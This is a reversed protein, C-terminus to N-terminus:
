LTPSVNQMRRNGRHLQSPGVLLLPLFLKPSSNYFDQRAQLCLKELRKSSNPMGKSCWTDIVGIIRHSELAAIALTGLSDYLTGTLPDMAYSLESVASMWIALALLIGRAETPTAPMAGKLIQRATLELIVSEIDASNKQPEPKSSLNNNAQKQECYRSNKYLSELLNAGTVKGSTLLIDLYANILPDTMAGANKKNFDLLIDVLIRGPAPSDEYLQAVLKSFQDKRIRRSLCQAILRPWVDRGTILKQRHAMEQQATQPASATAVASAVLATM